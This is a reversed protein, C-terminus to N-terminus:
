QKMKHEDEVQSNENSDREKHQIKELSENKAKILQFFLNEFNQISVQNQQEKATAVTTALAENTKKLEQIQLNVSTILWYLAFSAIVPNLIGGFFDGFTGWDGNDVSVSVHFNSFYAILVLAIIGGVILKSYFMQQKLKALENEPKIPETM